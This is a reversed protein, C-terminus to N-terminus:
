TWYTAPSHAAFIMRLSPSFARPVQESSCHENIAQAGLAIGRMLAVAEDLTFHESNRSRRDLLMHVNGGDVYEMIVYPGISPDTGSDAYLMRVVNPHNVKLMEARTENLVTRFALTTPDSLKHEPVVKVAVIMGSTLGTAKYVEGFSGGGIFSDLRFKEQGLGTVEAGIRGNAM